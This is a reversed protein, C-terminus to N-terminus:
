YVCQKYYQSGECTAPPCCGDENQTCQGYRPTCNNNGPVMWVGGCGACNVDNFSCWGSGCTVFDQSCCAPEDISPLAEPSKTPVFTTTIPAQIPAKPPQKTPSPTTKTPSPTKKTPSPTENVFVPSATPQDTVPTPPSPPLTTPSACTDPIEGIPPYPYGCPNGMEPPCDTVEYTVAPNDWYLSRFNQCGAQLVPDNFRTCDCNSEPNSSEIMWTGCSTFGDLEGPEVLSCSNSISSGAWDFGPAAIDFHPNSNECQYNGAPCTNVGRLVLTTAVGEHGAINSTGTVKWCTGCAPGLWSTGGLVSSVAATGYFKANYVNGAPAAFLANSHCHAPTAESLGAPIYACGCSGGSCDWYRTTSATQGNIPTPPSPPTPTPGSPTPSGCWQSGSGCAVCQAENANCWSGGQVQGNCYNWNCYSEACPVLLSLFLAIVQLFM